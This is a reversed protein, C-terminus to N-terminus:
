RAWCRGPDPNAAGWDISSAGSGYILVGKTSRVGVSQCTGDRSQSNGQAARAVLTYDTASLGDISLSYYGAASHAPLDLGNPTNGAGATNFAAYAMNNSRWREQAQQLSTLAAIADARRSKRVQDTFSPYAVALLVGIVVIGLMLEILTFGRAGGCRGPSAPTSAATM